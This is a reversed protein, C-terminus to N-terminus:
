EKCMQGDNIIVRIWCKRGRVSWVCTLVGGVNWQHRRMVRTLDLDPIEQRLRQSASMWQHIVARRSAPVPMHTYLRTIATNVTSGLSRILLAAHNKEVRPRITFLSLSPSFVCLHQSLFSSLFFFFVVLCLHKCDLANLFLTIVPKM